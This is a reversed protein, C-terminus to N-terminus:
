LSSLFDSTDNNQNNKYKEGPSTQSQSYLPSDTLKDGTTEWHKGSKFAQVVASVWIQQGQQFNVSLRVETDDKCNYALSSANTHMVLSTDLSSVSSESCWVCQLFIQHIWHKWKWQTGVQVTSVFNDGQRTASAFEHPIQENKIRIM